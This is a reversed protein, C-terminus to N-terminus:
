LTTIETYTEPRRDRYFQWKGRVEDILDLYHQLNFNWKQFLAVLEGSEVFKVVQDVVGSLQNVMLSAIIVGPVFLLFTIALTAFFSAWYRRGRTFHLAKQYVPYFLVVLVTGVIIPILFPKLIYVIAIMLGIFFLIFSKRQLQVTSNM